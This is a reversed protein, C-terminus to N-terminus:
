FLIFRKPKKAAEERLRELEANADTAAQNLSKNLQKIKANELRVEALKGQSESNEVSVLSDMLIKSKAEELAVEKQLLLEKKRLEISEEYDAKIKAVKEDLQEKAQKDYKKKFRATQEEFEKDMQFVKSELEEIKAAVKEKEARLEERAEDLEAQLSNIRPIQSLAGAAASALMLSVDTLSTPDVVSLASRSRVQNSGHIVFGSSLPCCLIAVLCASSVRM